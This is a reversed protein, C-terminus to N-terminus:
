LDRWRGFYIGRKVLGTMFASASIQLDHISLETAGAAFFQSTYDFRRIMPSCIFVHKRSQGNRLSRYSILLSPLGLVLREIVASRALRM